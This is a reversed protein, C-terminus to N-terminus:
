MQKNVAEYLFLQNKFKKIHFLIFLKIAISKVGVILEGPTSILSHSREFTARGPTPVFTYMVPNVGSPGYSSTIFSVM